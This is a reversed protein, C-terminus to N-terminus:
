KIVEAILNEPCVPQDVGSGRCDFNYKLQVLEDQFRAMPKIIIFSSGVADSRTEEFFSPNLLVDENYQYFLNAMEPFTKGIDQWHRSTPVRKEELDCGLLGEPIIAM